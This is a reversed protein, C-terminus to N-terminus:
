LMRPNIMQDVAYICLAAVGTKQCPASNEQMTDLTVSNCCKKWSNSSIPRNGVCDHEVSNHGLQNLKKGGRTLPLQLKPADRVRYSSKKDKKDPHIRSHISCSFFWWFLSAHLCVEGERRECHAPVITGCRLENLCQEAIQLLRLLMNKGAAAALHRRKEVVSAEHTPRM